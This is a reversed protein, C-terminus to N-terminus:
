RRTIRWVAKPLTAVGIQRSKRQSLSQFNIGTSTNKIGAIILRIIPEFANHKELWDSLAKQLTETMVLEPLLLIHVQQQRAAVLVTMLREQLGTQNKAGSCRFPVRNDVGRANDPDHQWIMQSHDAFPSLGVNLRNDALETFMDFVNSRRMELETSHEMEQWHYRLNLLGTTGLNNNRKFRLEEPIAKAIPHEAIRTLVYRSGNLSSEICGDLLHPHPKQWFRSDLVHLYGYATLFDDDSIETKVLFTAIDTLPSSLCRQLKESNCVTLLAALRQQDKIVFRVYLQCWQALLDDDINEYM